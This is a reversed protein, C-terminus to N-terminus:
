PQDWRMEKIFRAGMHGLWADLFRENLDVTVTKVVGSQKTAHLVEGVPNIVATEVDYGASILFAHNEIARAKMLTFNGGWIPLLIMEAGQAALARAPDTYQSDWCIMIGITGFDTQFVPYTDGPTLGGEVEERPLYVKRYKGALRGQRDILVATNYIANGEREYIGAVLYMGYQKAKTGLKETTPGPVPEALSAYSGSNGVLTIGEGLCVIDPKEQGVRDLAELFAQVSGSKGGTDAPRLSVSGIRVLRPAPAPAEEFVIDDWWVSGQPSWGLSLELRVKAAGEPAPAQISVRTWGKGAAETQYAFDPQGVRRNSGNLWDLRLLIQRRADKVALAKYYAVTRYHRGAEVDDYVRQWGGYAAANSNGSIALSDPATRYTFRDIHCRPMLEPRPSWEQWNQSAFSRDPSLALPGHGAAWLPSLLLVAALNMVMCPLHARRGVLPSKM